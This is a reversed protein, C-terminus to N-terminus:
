LMVTVKSLKTMMLRYGTSNTHDLEKYSREIQSDNLAITLDNDQHQDQIMRKGFRKGIILMSKTEKKCDGNQEYDSM